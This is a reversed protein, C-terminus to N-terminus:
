FKVISRFCRLKSFLFYNPNNPRMNAYKVMRKAYKVEHMHIENYVHM